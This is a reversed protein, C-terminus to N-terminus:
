EPLLLEASIPIHNPLGDLEVVVEICDNAYGGGTEGPAVRVHVYRSCRRRIRV